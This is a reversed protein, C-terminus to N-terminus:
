SPCRRLSPRGPLIFGLGVRQVLEVSPAPSDKAIDAVRRGEWTGRRSEILEDLVVADLGLRVAVIETTERARRLPSTWLSRLGEGELTRALTM